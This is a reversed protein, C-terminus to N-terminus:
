ACSNLFNHHEQGQKLALYGRRGRKKLEKGLAAQAEFRDKEIKALSAWPM